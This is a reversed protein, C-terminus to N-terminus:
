LTLYYMWMNQNRIYIKGDGRSKTEFNRSPILYTFATLSTLDFLIFSWKFSFLFAFSLCLISLIGWTDPKNIGENSARIKDYIEDM